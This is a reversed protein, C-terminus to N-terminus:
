ALRVLRREVRDLFAARQSDTSTDVGYMAL